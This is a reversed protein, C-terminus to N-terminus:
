RIHLQWRSEKADRSLALDRSILEFCVSFLSQYRFAVAIATLLLGNKTQTEPTKHRRDAGM